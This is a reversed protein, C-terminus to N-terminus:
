PLVALLGVKAQGLKRQILKWHGQFPKGAVKELEKESFIATFPLLLYEYTFRFNLSTSIVSYLEFAKFDKVYRHLLIQSGSQSGPLLHQKSGGAVIIGTTRTTKRLTLCTSGSLSRGCPYWTRSCTRGATLAVQRPLGRRAPTTCRWTSEQRLAPTPFFRRTWLSSARELVM